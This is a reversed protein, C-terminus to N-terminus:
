FSKSSLDLSSEPFVWFKFFASKSFGKFSSAVYVIPSNASFFLPSDSLQLVNNTGFRKFFELALFIPEVHDNTMM